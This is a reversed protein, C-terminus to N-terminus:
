RTLRIDRLGRLVGATDRQLKVIASFSGLGANKAIDESKLYPDGEFWYEAIWRAPYGPGDVTPHIHAPIIRGPYPAPKITRFEYRGDAGTKMWGRLRPHPGMRGDPNYYGRADTHYVYLRAGELPTRGDAGYITGSIVMPEGPEGPSVMVIKAPPNAPCERLVEEPTRSQPAALAFLGRAEGYLLLFSVLAVAACGLLDRRSLRRSGEDLM